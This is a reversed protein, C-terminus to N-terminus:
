RRFAFFIDMDRRQWLTENKFENVATINSISSIQVGKFNLVAKEDFKLLEKKLTISTEEANDGYLILHMKYAAYVVDAQIMNNQSDENRTVEFIIMTDVDTNEPDSGSHKISEQAEAKIKALDAGYISLANIVFQGDLKTIDIIANRLIIIADDLSNLAQIVSM